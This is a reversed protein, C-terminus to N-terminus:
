NEKKINPTVTTCACLALILLSYRTYYSVIFMDMILFTVLLMILLSYTKLSSKKCKFANKLIRYYIYYFAICGILGNNLLLELVNNHTYVGLIHVSYFYGNGWIPSKIFGDIGAQIYQARYIDGDNSNGADGQMFAFLEGFRDKIVSFAPISNILYLVVALILAISFIKKLFNKIKEKPSKDYIIFFVFLAGVIMLIAKRAGLFMIAPICVAAPIIWLWRSKHTETFM